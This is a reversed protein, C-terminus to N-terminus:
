VFSIAAASIDDFHTNGKAKTDKRFRMMRRQVFDGTLSKFSTFEKEVSLPADTTGVTFSDLGDSSVLVFDIDPNSYEQYFSEKADFSEGGAIGGADNEGALIETYSRVIGLNTGFEKIYEDVRGDGIRYALYFPAGSPYNVSYHNTAYGRKVFIHGDGWMHLRLIDEKKSYVAAVLTANLSRLSLGLERGVTKIKSITFEEIFDNTPKGGVSVISDTAKVFAEAVIRAGVDSKPSDSCGDSVVAYVINDTEGSISYDQCIEHKHGQEFYCDTNM